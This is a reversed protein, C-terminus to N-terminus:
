FIRVLLWVIGILVIISCGISFIKGALHLVFRLVVWGVVLVLITIIIPTFQSLDM